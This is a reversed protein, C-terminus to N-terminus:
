KLDGQLILSAVKKAGLGNTVLKCKNSRIKINKKIISNLSRFILDKGVNNYHGLCWVLGKRHLEKAISKQNDAITIVISPLGLCCREWSTSGCAGIALDAKIMLSALSNRLNHIRINKNKKALLKIKQLHPSKFSIVVDLKISNNKLELFALVSLETMNFKDSGGFFVLIRKVLGVRNPLTKRLKAYESQLLAYQPGLLTKCNKNILNQYRTKYNLTLNQDLLIDCYHKRNALDDIVMIKKTYPRLKKEWDMGIQYHDIILWDIKHKLIKITQSVNEYRTKSIENVNFGEKRIKTTLNDKYNTCIFNCNAGLKRLAKALTLCRIIHGHGIDASADVRFFVKILKKKM